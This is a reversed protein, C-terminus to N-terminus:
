YDIGLLWSLLLLSIEEEQYKLNSPLNLHVRPDPIFKGGKILTGGPLNPLFLLRVGRFYTYGRCNTYLISKFQNWYMRTHTGLHYKWIKSFFRLSKEHIYDLCLFSPWFEVLLWGSDFMRRMKQSKHIM